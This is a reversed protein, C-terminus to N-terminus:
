SRIKVQMTDSTVVDFKVVTKALIDSEIGETGGSVFTIIESDDESLTIKINTNTLATLFQLLTM